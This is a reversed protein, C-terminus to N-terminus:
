LIYVLDYHGLSWIVRSVRIVWVRIDRRVNGRLNSCRCCIFGVQFICAFSFCSSFCVSVSGRLNSYSSTWLVFLLIILYFKLGPWFSVSFKFLWKIPEWRFVGLSILYLSRLMPDTRALSDLTPQICRDQSQNDDYFVLAPQICRDSLRNEGSFGLSTSYM